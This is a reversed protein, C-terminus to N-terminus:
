QYVSGNDNLLSYYMQTEQKARVNYCYSGEVRGKACTMTVNICAITIEKWIVLIPKIFAAKCQLRQELDAPYKALM